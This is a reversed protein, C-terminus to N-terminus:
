QLVRYKVIQKSCQLAMEQGWWWANPSGVLIEGDRLTVEVLLSKDLNPPVGDCEIWGGSTQIDKTVRWDNRQYIYMMLEMQVFIAGCGLYEYNELIDDPMKAGTKFLYFTREETTADTDIIAWMFLFGDIGDCRVIKADVPMCVKAVEMFPITYKYITKM